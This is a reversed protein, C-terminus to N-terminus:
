VPMMSIYKKLDKPLTTDLTATTNRTSAIMNAMGNEVARANLVAVM